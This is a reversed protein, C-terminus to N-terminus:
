LDTTTTKTLVVVSASPCVSTEVSSLVLTVCVDRLVPSLVAAKPDLTRVVQQVPQVAHSMTVVLRVNLLQFFHFCLLQTLHVM